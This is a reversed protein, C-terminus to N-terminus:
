SRCEGFNIERLIQTVSYNQFKWVTIKACIQMGSSFGYTWLCDVHVMKKQSNPVESFARRSSNPRGRTDYDSYYKMRCSHFIPLVEPSSFYAIERFIARTVKLSTTKETQRDTVFHFTCCAIIVHHLLLLSLSFNATKWHSPM